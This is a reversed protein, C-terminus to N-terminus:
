AVERWVKVLEDDAKDLPTGKDAVWLLLFDQMTFTQTPDLVVWLQGEEDELTVEQTQPNIVCVNASLMRMTGDVEGCWSDLATTDWVSASAREVGVSGCVNAYINREELAGAATM